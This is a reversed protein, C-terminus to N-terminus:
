HKKPLFDFLVSSYPNPWPNAISLWHDYRQRLVVMVEICDDLIPLYGLCYCYCYCYDCCYSHMLYYYYVMLLDDDCDCGCDYGMVPSDVMAGDDPCGVCSTWTVDTLDVVYMWVSYCQLRLPVVFPVFDVVNPVM